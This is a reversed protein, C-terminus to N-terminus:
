RSPVIPTNGHTKFAFHPSKQLVIKHNKKRRNESLILFGLNDGFLFNSNRSTKNDVSISPEFLSFASNWWSVPFLLKSLHFVCCYFRRFNRSPRRSSVSRLSCRQHRACAASARPRASGASSWSQPCRWFWQLRGSTDFSSSWIRGATGWSRESGSPQHARHQAPGQSQSVPAGNRHSGGPPYSQHERPMTSASHCQGQLKEQSWSQWLYM